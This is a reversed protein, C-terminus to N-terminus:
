AAVGVTLRTEHVADAILLGAADIEEATTFKGVAMRLAGEVADPPLRIARLVHSAHMAGRSCAAGSSMAVSDHLRALVADNPVGPVTVHLSCALRHDTDGNILLGPVREQLLRQLRDRLTAIRPEDIQMEIARLRAAEGFGAIGPVNPTGARRPPDSGIVSLAGVGKPGYMKHASAAVYTLGWAEAELPIRGAAQTADVLLPTGHRAACRAVEEIPYVNGIENNAAMVCVLDAGAGLANTVEVVDLRGRTDIPLWRVEFLGQAAGDNLLDILAGHEVPTAVVRMASTGRSQRSIQAHRLAMALSETAGSTFVLTNTPAGLLTAVHGAATDLLDQARRGVQHEVSNPNGYTEALAQFIV